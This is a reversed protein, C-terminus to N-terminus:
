VAHRKLYRLIQELQQLKYPKTIYEYAGLVFAQAMLDQDALGTMMIVPLDPYRAKIKKLAVLGDMGPMKIDLLVLTPQTRALQALAAEGSAATLVGCGRPQLFEELHRLFEPEDDVLLVPGQYDLPTVSRSHPLWREITELLTPDPADSPLCAQIHRIARPDLPERDLHNLLIIPLQEDFTRICEALAMGGCEHALSNALVLGPRVHKLMQLGVEGATSTTVTYGHQTLLDYLHERLEPDGSVVLVRQPLAANQTPGNSTQM